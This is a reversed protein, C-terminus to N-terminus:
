SSVYSTARVHTQELLFVVEGSASARRSDASGASESIPHPVSCGTWTKPSTRHRLARGVCGSQSSVELWMKCAHQFVVVGEPDGPTREPSYRPPRKRLVSALTAKRVEIPEQRLDDGNLELLDFAYLLAM